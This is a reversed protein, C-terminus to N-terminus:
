PGWARGLYALVNTSALQLLEEPGLLGELSTLIEQYRGAHEHEPFYFPARSQDPHSGTAFFDAGFCLTEALGIELAHEVNRLLSDPDEPHLYARLFNLGILGGRRSIELALEDPLNRPSPSVARFNSHSAIVPIDLSHGDIHSLIDHALADSTHSLDIATGSEHLRDLLLRGDEEIGVATTNGGGFRNQGHHTITVYLIPGIREELRDLREFCRDLPEAEECLGSANEIAAVVGIREGALYRGAEPASGLAGLEHEHDGLLRLYSVVQRAAFRTSGPAVDAYIALIQLRVRGEHLRPISCGIDASRTADAHGVGALYALLDCHLDAVAISASSM